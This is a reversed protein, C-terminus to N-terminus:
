SGMTMSILKELFGLLIVTVFGIGYTKHTKLQDQIGPIGFDKDGCIARMIKQLSDETDKRSETNAKCEDVVKSLGKAFSKHNTNMNDCLTGLWHFLEPDLDDPVREPDIRIFTSSEDHAMIPPIRVTDVKDSM